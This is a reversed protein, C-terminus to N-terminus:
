PDRQWKWAAAQLSDESLIKQMPHGRETTAFPGTRLWFAHRANAHRLLFRAADDVERECRAPQAELGSRVCACLCLIRVAAVGLSAASHGGWGDVSFLPTTLLFFVGGRLVAAGLADFEAVRALEREAFSLPTSEHVTWLNQEVVIATEVRRQHDHAAQWEARSAPRCAGELALELLARLCGDCARSTLYKHAVHLCAVAILKTPTSLAREDDEGGHTRADLARHRLLELALSLTGLPDQISAGCVRRLAPNDYFAAECPFLGRDYVTAYSRIAFRLTACLARPTSAAARPPVALPQRLSLLPHPTAPASAREQEPEPEPEQEPEAIAVALEPPLAARLLFSEARRAAHCIAEKVGCM